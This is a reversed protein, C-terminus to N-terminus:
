EIVLQDPNFKFEWVLGRLFPELLFPPPLPFWWGILGYPYDNQLITVTCEVLSGLVAGGAVGTLRIRFVENFEPTLDHIIFVPVVAERQNEM